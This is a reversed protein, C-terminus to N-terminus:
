SVYDAGGPSGGDGTSNSTDDTTQILSSAHGYEILEPAEYLAKPPGSAVNDTQAAM